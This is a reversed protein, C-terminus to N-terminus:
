RKDTPATELLRQLEKSDGLVPWTRTLQLDQGTAGTTHIAAELFPIGATAIGQEQATLRALGLLVARLAVVYPQQRGPALANELSTRALTLQAIAEGPKGSNELCRGHDLLAVGLNYAAGPRPPKTAAAKTLIPLLRVFLRAAAPRDGAAIARRATRGLAHALDEQWSGVTPFRAALSELIAVAQGLPGDSDGTKHFDRIGALTSLARA